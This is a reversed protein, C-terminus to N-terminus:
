NYYILKHTNMNNIYLLEYEQLKNGLIQLISDINTQLNYIHESKINKYFFSSNKLINNLDQIFYTKIINLNNQNDILQKQIYILKYLNYITINFIITLVIVFFINIMYM